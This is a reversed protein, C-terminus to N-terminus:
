QSLKNLKASVEKSDPKIKLSEQFAQKAKDPQKMALYIDGIFEYVQARYPADKSLLRLVINWEDLAKQYKKDKAYVSAIKSHFQVQKPDQKIAQKLYKISESSKNLQDALVGLRYLIMPDRLKLKHLYKTHEYAKKTHGELLYASVLLSRAEFDSNKSKLYEELKDIVTKFEGKRYLDYAQKRLIEPKLPTKKKERQKSSLPLLFLSVV